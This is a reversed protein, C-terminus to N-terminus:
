GDDEPTAIRVSVFDEGYAERDIRIEFVRGADVRGVDQNASFAPSGILQGLAQRVDEPDADLRGALRSLTTKVTDRPQDVLLGTLSSRLTAFVDDFRIEAEQEREQDSLALREEPLPLPDVVRWRPEDGAGAEDAFLGLHGMLELLDRARSHETLGHPRLLELLRAIHRDEHRIERESMQEREREDREHVWASADPGGVSDAVLRARSDEPQSWPDGDAEDLTLSAVLMNLDFAVRPLWRLWGSDMFDTQLPIGEGM